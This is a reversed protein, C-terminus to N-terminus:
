NSNLEKDIEELNDDWLYKKTENVIVGSLALLCILNPIAMLGNALDSLNWVLDLSFVSGVFVMIVYVVRYPIIAKKGFLYEIAKEAYYSWGLITSFVFTLLGVTLVIPGVVPILAFAAKTLEGGNLGQNWVGTNVLVLGTM